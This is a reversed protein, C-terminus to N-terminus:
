ASNHVVTNLGLKEMLTEGAARRLIAIPLGLDPRHIALKVVVGRAGMRRQFEPSFELRSRYKGELEAGSALVLEGCGSNPRIEGADPTAVTVPRKVLAPLALDTSSAGVVRAISKDGAFDGVQYRRRAAVRIRRYDSYRRQQIRTRQLM